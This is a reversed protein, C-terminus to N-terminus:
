EFNVATLFHQSQERRQVIYEQLTNIEYMTTTSLERGRNRKGWKVRGQQYGCNNEINTLWKKKTVNALKNYKKPEVYLPYYVTNEEESHSIESLMIGEVNM